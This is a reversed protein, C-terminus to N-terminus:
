RTLVLVDLRTERNRESIRLSLFLCLIFCKRLETASNLTCGYFQQRADDYTVSARFYDRWHRRLQASNQASAVQLAPM